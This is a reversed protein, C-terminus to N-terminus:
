RAGYFSQSFFVDVEDILLVRNEAKTSKVSGGGSDKGSYPPPIAPAGLILGEAAQRIDCKTNIFDECLSRTSSSFLTHSPQSSPSHAPWMTSERKREIVMYLLICVRVFMM